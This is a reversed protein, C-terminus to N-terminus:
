FNKIARLIHRKGPPGPLKETQFGVSRLARVVTGKVSYTTLVGGPLLSAFLNAFIAESWLAPQTDPGFADFYVLHFHSAVPRYTEITSEAKKLNFYQSVAFAENWAAQHISAFIDQLGAIHFLGSYNLNRWVDEPLPYLEVSTYNVQFRLKEAELLTMLANLGTGFGIELINFSHNDALGKSLFKQYAHRFGADLFIHESEQVAGFTSHYHQNLSPHFVTDSGDATRVVELIHNGSEQTNTPTTNM